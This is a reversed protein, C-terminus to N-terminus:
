SVKERLMCWNGVGTGPIEGEEILKFGYRQYFPVNRGNQTRLYCPLHEQDIKALMPKLLTAAYSKGQFMPDVALEELFWHRFPAHRKHLPTCYDTFVQLKGIIEGGIKAMLASEDSPMTEWFSMDVTESPLWVAIGELNPSTAYAEGYLVGFGLSLQFLYPLKNKRESADPIIYTFAPDDHFARALMEAVPEILSENLRILDNLGVMILM